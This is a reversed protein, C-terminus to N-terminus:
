WPRASAIGIGELSRYEFPVSLERAWRQAIEYEGRRHVDDLIITWDSALRDKFYPVAPYRATRAYPATAPPGDVILLDVRLSGLAATLVEEAYWPAGYGSHSPSLEAVIVSAQHTLQEEVLWESVLDAWKPDHEISWLHGGRERLLRAIYLTSVGAGCEVIHCRRRIAIESVVTSVASPRM